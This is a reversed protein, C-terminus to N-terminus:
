ISQRSALVGPYCGSRRETELLWGCAQLVDCCFRHFENLTPSTFPVNRAVLSIQPQGRHKPLEYIKVVRPNIESLVVLHAILNDTAERLNTSIVLYTALLRLFFIPALIQLVGHGVEPASTSTDPQAGM